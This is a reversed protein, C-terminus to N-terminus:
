MRVIRQTLKQTNGVMQIFYIGNPSNSINIVNQGQQLNGKKLIKGNVDTLLYRLNEPASIVIQDRVLNSQLTIAARVGSNRIMSINSYSVAGSVTTVKIRYYADGSQMPRYAFSRSASSVGTLKAFNKGDYSVEVVQSAVSEDCVLKWDLSHLGNKETAKLDLQQVAMVILPTYNGSITYSGLSGYNSTNENADGNIVVYYIGANLVTDVSVDLKDLPAYVRIINKDADMLVVRVDLNAGQNNPGVSFPKANLVFQGQKDLSFKFADKDSSTTIVGDANFVNNTIPVLSAADGADDSHDDTRYTFGNIGTIISLNDQDAACGSPTPGNNWGSFNRGYSNGMVPAWGTEGSGVGDNYVTILACDTSYKAQHSLGLTHGSEHSCCEAINKPSWSLRDPFVFGPTGDGWTFSRTFSVGGVGQYWDSTPTVIIRVRQTIPAALYVTSDTTININFPRFDESVRQFIETVQADTLGSPQCYFSKGGNWPTATVYQGDFDLFITAKASPYSSLKPQAFGATLFFISFLFTAIPKM